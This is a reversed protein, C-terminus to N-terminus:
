NESLFISSFNVVREMDRFKSTEFDTKKLSDIVVAGHLDDKGHYKIPCALYSCPKEKLKKSEGEPLGLKEKQLTFYRDSNKENFQILSESMIEGIYYCQGVIGVNPKFKISSLKKEQRTQHRGVNKLRTGLIPYKKAKFISVRFESNELDPNEKIFRNFVAECINNYIRTEQQTIKHSHSWVYLGVHGLGLGGLVILEHDLVWKCIKESFINDLVLLKESSLSEIYLGVLFAVFLQGLGILFIKLYKGKM